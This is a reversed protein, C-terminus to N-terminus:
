SCQIQFFYKIKHLLRYRQTLKDLLKAPTTFSQYTTIFTKVFKNDLNEESTLNEILLNLSRPYPNKDKGKSKQRDFFDEWIPIDDEKSFDILGEDATSTQAAITKKV